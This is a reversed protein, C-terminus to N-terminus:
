RPPDPKMPGALGVLGKSLASESCSRRGVSASPPPQPCSVESSM